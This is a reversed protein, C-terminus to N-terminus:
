ARCRSGTPLVSGALASAGFNSRVAGTVVHIVDVGFPKLEMRLASRHYRTVVTAYLLKLAAFAWAGDVSSACRRTMPREIISCAPDSHARRCCAAVAAKSACYAGAYPTIMAASVSGIVVIVACRIYVQFPNSPRVSVWRFAGGSRREIMSPAVAQVTAVVGVVNTAFIRTIDAVDQEVLPMMGSVGANAICVDIPGFAAVAATLTAPECVDAAATNIGIARLDDLCDVSRATALVRCGRSHFELALARGIGTSCGTV